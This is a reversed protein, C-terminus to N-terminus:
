PFHHIFKVTSQGRKGEDGNGDNILLRRIKVEECELFDSFVARNDNEKLVPIAKGSSPPEQEGVQLFSM